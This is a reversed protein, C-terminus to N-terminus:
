EIPSKLDKMLVKFAKVTGEVTGEDDLDEGTEPNLGSKKWHKKYSEATKNLETDLDLGKVLAWLGAMILGSCDDGHGFINFRKKIDLVIPSDQKWLGWANRMYMSSSFHLSAPGNNLIFFKEEPQLSDFLLHIGEDLTSPIKDKLKIM